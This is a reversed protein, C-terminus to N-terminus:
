PTAEQQARDWTQVIFGAGAPDKLIALEGGIPNSQTPLMVQGGLEAAQAAIARTDAVRIYSVWTPALDPVPTPVVAARPQGQSALYHYNEGDALAVQSKEYGFVSQYFARAASADSTWLENWMFDGVGAEQDRPDGYRTQLLAVNAGQPDQALALRGRQGVDRPGGLIKGGGAKLREVAADIDDVSIVVVWQSVNGETTFKRADVMGGIPKGERLILWYDMGQLQRFEWGFLGSYFTSAAKPDETVLDHWVVKGTLHQDTAPAIAPLDVQLNTCSSLSTLAFTLLLALTRM